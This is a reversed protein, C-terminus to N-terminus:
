QAHHLAPRAELVCLLAEKQITKKPSPIMCYNLEDFIPDPENSDDSVGADDGPDAASTTPSAPTGWPALEGQAYLATNQRCDQM